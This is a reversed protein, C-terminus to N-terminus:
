FSDDDWAIQDSGLPELTEFTATTVPLGGVPAPVMGKRKWLIVSNAVVVCLVIIILIFLTWESTDFFPEEVVESGTFSTTALDGKDDPNDDYHASARITHLRRHDSVKYPLQVTVSEGARIDYVGQHIVDENDRITIVVDNATSTGANRFTASITINDGEFPFPNSLFLDGPSIEIDSNLLYVTVNTRTTRGSTDNVELVLEYRGDDMHRTDFIALTGGSVSFRQDRVIPVWDVGDRTHYLNYRAIHPDFATGQVPVLGTLTANVVPSSISAEPADLDVVAMVAVPTALGNGLQDTARAWLQHDGSGYGTWTWTWAGSGYTAESWTDGGDASLEVSGVGSGADSATGTVEVVPTSVVPPLPDFAVDPASADQTSSTAQSWGSEHGFADRARVRYHYAVGDGLMRFTYSTQAMWGSTAVLDSFAGDTSAEVMYEVGGVGADLAPLWSVENSAGATHPPEPTIFPVQPASDDQTSSVASSWASRQDFGDRSRARYYITQGEPLGSFTVRTDMVWPSSTVLTSFTPVTSVEVMYEVGGVGADAVESWSVTNDLGQTYAPETQLLPVPPPSADQTSSVVPSWGTAWSFADRAQVRYYYTVGDSLGAFTHSTARLWGSDLDVVTWTPDSTAQVKYEVGGVGADLSISWTLGNNTGQTHLPESAMYPVSPPSADLITSQGGAWGTMHDFADKARVRFHLQTHEPLGDFTYTGGSVWGSSGGPTGFNPDDDWEAWYEVGAVGLDVAPNWSLAVGRGKTFEPLDNLSPMSPPSNDQISGAVRSWASTQGLADRARVRYFIMQLDPLGAFTWERVPVWGSVADPSNFTPNTDREIWYLVGGVGTDISLSWTLTNVTGPTFQPEPDLEPTSPPSNDQTSREVVSWPSAYGFLDRARVRYYYTTGDALGTFTVSTGGAWGYTAVVNAFAGDTAVQAFYTVGGVGADVSVSWSISNSLGQTFEPEAALSPVSPPSADQASARVASWSSRHDFADRSRVRYYYMVGDSLGSFTHMFSTIWGSSGHLTAFISSTSAQIEYEVGGVGADTVNTWGLTNTTGPTVTPEAFLTPVPPARDDQTSSTFSSWESEQGFADRSRVRYWYRSGDGLNNWTYETGDMWGSGLPNTFAGDTSIETYYEVGGIGGDKVASWSVINFTGETFEPEADMPPVPPPSADQTSWVVNSWPTTYRFSDYARVRYYYRTGDALGPVTAGTGTLRDYEGTVTSFVPSTSWQLTYLVGGAGADVAETWAVTNSTGQTFEPELGMVPSSPASNDQTSSVVNSLPTHHDFGDRARVAYYYTVGDALGSFTYSLATVWGSSAFPSTMTAENDVYVQYEVGGIGADTSGQWQVTNTTGPTYSPEFRMTPTTPPSADQVSWRRGSWSSTHGFADRARVRYFWLTGEALNTFTHETATIWGSNGNPSNFFWDNDYEIWYEVGGVGADRSEDWHLTNETGETYFPELELAPVSPPSNDQTSREVNSWGGEMRLADRAKVRYYYTTGDSLGTFTHSQRSIWGSDVVTAFTPSSSAQALYEVGGVGGDAVATWSITNATGSTYEPEATLFPATPASADQTSFVVNSYSSVHDLADRARVRYYYTSGDVLGTFTWSRSTIWPSEALVVAFNSATSVEAQYTIGGVGQGDSSASWGVTNTTGATYQPEAAMTPVTPATDDQRSATWASWGGVNGVADRARVRYFILVNEPLGTFTHSLQPAWASTGYNWAQCEYEVGGSGSDVVESWHITNSTGATYLPETTITPAPPATADQTSREVNSWPSEQRFSDRAHVRYFYLTGDVLGTFTHATGSIWGSTAAIVSFDATSSAQAEYMVGGVGSDSSSSWALRNSTGQTYLPEPFLFPTTPPRSDMTTSVWGSWGSEQDLGDKAKVRFYYTQGDTLGSFTYTRESQWLSEGLVPSFAGSAAYQARYTVQGIGAGDSSASWSVDMSTGQSYQALASMTPVGPPSADQRSWTWASWGGVNGVADRARVRYYIYTNEPLGTFTHSLQPTWPSFGYTWAECEYEVGGAGDDTAPNWEVTNSTGQTYTPETLMYYGTPARSDQTSSVVNSWAGEQNFQDRAKVRYYYTSGDTLGSFTWTTTTRWGSDGETTAFVSSLSAYARYRVTGGSNDTVATWSVANSTGQTYAPEAAMTPAPPPAADQISAVNASWASEQDLGDKARAHYYYTVGDQLGTFTYSRQAIWPSTQLPPNFSPDTGIEVQYTIQGIGGTDVSASWRVTNTTGATYTPEAVMTPVTPPSNDQRAVIAGSWASEQGLADRARVHYYYRQNEQLGTFNHELATTWGSDGNPSNFNSVDDYECYYEVGGVGADTVATWKAIFHLGPQFYDQQVMVPAPPPSADQTSSVTNSWQSVQGFGDRSRVRYYYTTDDSLGIFTYTTSTRWGSTALPTAFSPADDVQVQYQEGGVGDDTVESWEVTNTTGATYAPETALGPVPPPSGDQTSSVSSSWPSEQDLADKAKVRFHYTVGDVLSSFEYNRQTIWGSSFDPSSFSASTDAEARYTIGGAGFGDSSASWYVWNSSGATYAPEVSMAPVSPATADQLSFVAVSFFSEQGLADRAKVRYYLLDNEALGTFTHSFSTTWGSNGLPAPFSSFTDYECYYEVGGVGADTTALWSVTNSLGQTYLPEAVMSPRNPASADQTSHVPPSWASEQSFADRARVRYYYTTGDALGSFTRSTGAQWGTTGLVTNFTPDDTYQARYQVGGIGGDTSTGWSVTNSTGQTYAPEPVVVPVSPASSDQTSSVGASWGGVNGVGDRARVRYHYTFGDTLGSFTYQTTTIWGTSFIVTIFGADAALQCDYEIGGVGVDSGATWSVTNYTGQTYAPEGNMGYGSPAVNDTVTVTVTKSADITAAAVGTLGGQTVEFSHPTDTTTGVNNIEMERIRLWTVWGSGDLSGSAVSASGQDLVDYTGGSVPTGDQWRGHVDVFWFVRILSGAAQVRSNTEDFSSNTLEIISTGGVDLDWATAGVITGNNATCRASNGVNIGTASGRVTFGELTPTGGSVDIGRTSGDVAVADRLTSTSSRVFYCVSADEVRTNSVTGSHQNLYIGNTTSDYVQLGDIAISTIYAYVGDISCNTAKGRTISSGAASRDLYYGYRTDNVVTDTVTLLTRQSNIGYWITDDFVCNSIDVTGVLSYFAGSGSDTVTCRTVDGDANSMYIGYASATDIDTDTVSPYGLSAVIGYQCDSIACDKVDTSSSVLYVGYGTLDTITCDEVTPSAIWGIVGYHCNKIAVDTLYCSSSEMYLGRDAVPNAVGCEELRSDNFYLEGGDRVWFAYNYTTDNATILSADGTTSPNGDGDYINLRGGDEVEIHYMTTASSNIYLNCDRLTLLGGGKVTLDGTLYIDDGNHTIVDGNNIDWDADKYVTAAVAGDPLIGLVAVLVILSLAAFLIVALFRKSM